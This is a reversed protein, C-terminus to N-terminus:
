NDNDTGFEFKILATQGFFHCKFEELGENHLFKNFLIEAVVDLTCLSKHVCAFVLHPIDKFFDDFIM